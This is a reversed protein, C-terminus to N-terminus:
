IEEGRWPRLLRVKRAALGHPGVSVSGSIECIWVQMTKGRIHGQWYPLQDVGCVHIGNRRYQVKEGKRASVWAGPTWTGDANQTPLSWEQASHVPSTTGTLAKLALGNSMGYLM